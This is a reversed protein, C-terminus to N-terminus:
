QLHLYEFICYFIIIKESLHSSQMRKCWDSCLEENLFALFTSASAITNNRYLNLSIFQKM